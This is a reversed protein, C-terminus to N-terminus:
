AKGLISGVRNRVKGQYEETSLTAKVKKGVMRSTCSEKAMDQRTLGIAEIFEAFRDKIMRFGKSSCNSKYTPSPLCLMGDVNVGKLTTNINKDDSKAEIIIYDISIYHAVAPLYKESENIKPEEAIQLVVVTGDPAVPTVQLDEDPVNDLPISAM